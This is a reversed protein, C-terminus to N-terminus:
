LTFSYARPISYEIVVRKCARKIEPRLGNFESIFQKESKKKESTPSPDFSPSPNFIYPSLAYINPHKWYVMKKLSDSHSSEVMKWYNVHEYIYSPDKEKPARYLNQLFVILKEIILSHSYSVEDYELLDYNGKIDYMYDITKYAIDINGLPHKKRKAVMEYLGDYGPKIFRQNSITDWEKSIYDVYQSICIARIKAKANAKANAKAYASSDIVDTDKIHKLENTYFPSYKALGEPWNLIEEAIYRYICTSTYAVKNTIERPISYYQKLMYSVIIDSDDISLKFLSCNDIIDIVLEYIRKSNKEEESDYISIETILKELYNDYEVLLSENYSIYKQEYGCINDIFRSILEKNTEIEVVHLRLESIDSIDAACASIVTEDINKHVSKVMDIIYHKLDNVTTLNLKSFIESGKHFPCASLLLDGM